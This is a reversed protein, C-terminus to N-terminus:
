AAAGAGQAQAAMAAIAQALQDREVRTRVINPNIGMKDALWEAYEDGKVVLAAQEPGLRGMLMEMYRDHRLIEDQAQARTLPSLPRLVIQKGDIAPLRIRGQEKLIHAVRRFVHGLDVLLRTYPGARRRATNSTRQLVETASMPTGEPPGLDDGLMIQHIAAQLDSVVLDAVNFDGAANLRELGDSNRAKPIITYPEITVTDPNLVGDDAAQWVGAIALEANELVFRKVLNLTKIDPLALMVPGRGILENAVRMYSFDAFPKSGV